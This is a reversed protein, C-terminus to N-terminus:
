RAVQDNEKAPDILQPSLRNPAVGALCLDHLGLMERCKEDPLREAILFKEELSCAKRVEAFPCSGNEGKEGAPCRVLLSFLTLTNFLRRDEQGPQLM